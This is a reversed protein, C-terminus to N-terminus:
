HTVAASQGALAGAQSAAMAPMPSDIRSQTAHETSVSQGLAVGCQPLKWPAALHRTQAESLSQAFPTQVLPSHTEPQLACAGHRFGSVVQAAVSRQSASVHSLSAAQGAL